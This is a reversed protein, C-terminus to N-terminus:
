QIEVNGILDSGIGASCSWIHKVHCSSKAVVRHEVQMHYWWFLIGLSVQSFYENFSFIITIPSEVSDGAFDDKENFASENASQGINAKKMGM